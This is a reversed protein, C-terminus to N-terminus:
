NMAQQQWDPSYDDVQGNPDDTHFPFIRLLVFVRFPSASHLCLPWHNVTHRFRPAFCAISVDQRSDMQESCFASRRLLHITSGIGRAHLMRFKNVAGCRRTSGVTAKIETVVTIINQDVELQIFIKWEEADQM